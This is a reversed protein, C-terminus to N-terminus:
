RVARSAGQAGCSRRRSESGAAARSESGADARSESGTDARSESGTDAWSEGSGTDAGLRASRGCQCLVVKLNSCRADKAADCSNCREAMGHWSSQRRWRNTVTGGSRWCKASGGWSCVGGVHGSSRRTARWVAFAVAIAGRLWLLWRLQAKWSGDDHLLCQAPANDQWARLASAMSWAMVASPMSQYRWLALNRSCVRGAGAAFAASMAGGASRWVVKSCCRAM